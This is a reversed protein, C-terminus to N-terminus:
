LHLATVVKVVRDGNSVISDDVFKLITERLERKLAPMQSENICFQSAFFYEDSQEAIHDVRATASNVAMKFVSSLLESQTKTQLYVHLNVPFYLEEKKELLNMKLLLDLNKELINDALRTRGYIQSYSAGHDQDGCAAFISIAHHSLEFDKDIQIFDAESYDKRCKSEISMQLKKIQNEINSRDMEPFLDVEEKAVLLRFIKKANLPLKFAQEFTYVSKSTLRRKNSLVQNTFARTCNAARSFDSFNLNKMQLYTKVFSRYDGALVLHCIDSVQLESKRTLLTNSSDVLNTALQFDAKATV